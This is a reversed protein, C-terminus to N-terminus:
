VFLGKQYYFRNSFEYKQRPFHRFWAGVKFALLELIFLAVSFSFYTKHVLSLQRDSKNEIRNVCVLGEPLLISNFIRVKSSRLIFNIWLKVENQQQCQFNEICKYTQLIFEVGTTLEEHHHLSTIKHKVSCITEAKLIHPITLFVKFIYTIHFRHFLLQIKLFKRINFMLIM